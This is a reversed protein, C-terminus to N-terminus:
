AWKKLAKAHQTAVERRHTELDQRIATKLDDMTFAILDNGVVRRTGNIPCCTCMTHGAQEISGQFTFVGIADPNSNYDITGFFVSDGSKFKMM